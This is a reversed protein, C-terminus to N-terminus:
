NRRRDKRKQYGPRNMYKNIIADRGAPLTENDRISQDLEKQIITEEADHLKGDWAERLWVKHDNVIDEIRDIERQDVDICVLIWLPLLIIAIKKM